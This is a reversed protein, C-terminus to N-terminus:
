KPNSFPWTLEAKSDSISGRTSVPMSGAVKIRAQARAHANINSIYSTLRQMISTNDDGGVDSALESTAM